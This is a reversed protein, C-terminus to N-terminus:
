SARRQQPVARLTPVPAPAPITVPRQRPEDERRRAVRRCFGALGILGFGLLALSASEAAADSPLAIRPLLTHPPPEIRVAALNQPETTFRDAGVAGSGLTEGFAFCVALVVGLVGSSAHWLSPRDPRTHKM